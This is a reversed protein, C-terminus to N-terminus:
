DIKKVTSHVLLGADQLRLDDPVEDPRSVDVANFRHNLGHALKLLYAITQGMMGDALLARGSDGDGPYEQYNSKSRTNDINRRRKPSLPHTGAGVRASIDNMEVLKTLNMIPLGPILRVRGFEVVALVLLITGVIKLLLHLPLATARLQRSNINTGM